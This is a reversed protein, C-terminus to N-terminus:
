FLVIDQDFLEPRFSKAIGTGADHKVLPGRAAARWQSAPGRQETLGHQAFAIVRDTLFEPCQM